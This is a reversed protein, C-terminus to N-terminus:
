RLTRDGTVFNFRYKFTWILFPFVAFFPLAFLLGFPKRRLLLLLQM